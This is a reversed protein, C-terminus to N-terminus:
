AMMAFALDAVRESAGTSGLKQRLKALKEIMSLRVARNQLIARSEEVLREPNFEAQILEPVAREGAILNVMGIHDVKVLLRALGYTLWSMHYVIVMPKLLLGTELTATGSAVWVLDAAGVADYRRDEVVRMTLAATEHAPGLERPSVTSACVCIFQVDNARSMQRAAALMIPWHNSVEKQRSGPLIAITTKGADLGLRALVTQRDDCVRITDLLPHGVFTVKVGHKEYFPVEFPFIVAMRDVWRAIQRVRGRRWAWVQPSVYYLVPVRISKALKALRLNFEPFDIVILLSPKRERLARRLLRYARLLRKLSGLLEVLGMGAIEGVDFLSEFRTRRLQEGAVGFIRLSPDRKLLAEVLHAGHVDGSAEGVVLMIQKGGNSV